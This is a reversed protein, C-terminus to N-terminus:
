GRARCAARAAATPERCSRRPVAAERGAADDGGRSAVANRRGAYCLRLRARSAGLVGRGVRGRLPPPFLFSTRAMLFVEGEGEFPSPPSPTGSLAQARAHPRRGQGRPRKAAAGGSPSDTPVQFPSPMLRDKEESTGSVTSRAVGRASEVSDNPHQAAQSRSPYGATWGV